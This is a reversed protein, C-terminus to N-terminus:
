APRTDVLRDLLRLSTRSPSLSRSSAMSSSARARASDPALSASCAPPGGPPRRAARPPSRWRAPIRRPRDRARRPRPWAPGAPRRRDRRVPAVQLGIGLVVEAQGLQDLEQRGAARAALGGTGAIELLGPPEGGLDGRGVLLARQDQGGADAEVLGALEVEGQREGLLGRGHEVVRHRVEVEAVQQERQGLALRVLGAGLREELSGDLLVVPDELDLRAQDLGHVVLRPDQM